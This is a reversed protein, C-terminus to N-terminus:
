RSEDRNRVLRILNEKGKRIKLIKGEEKMVALVMSIKSKSLGIEKVIDSQYAQGGSRLLFREIMQEVGLDEEPLPTLVAESVAPMIDAIDKEKYAEDKTKAQRRRWFIVVASSILVILAGLMWNFGARAVVLAPEGKSFSYYMAGGWILRNGDRGDFDPSSSKVDYGDPIEVVFVSDPSLVMGESFADGVLIKGSEITSFNKWWFSYRVIGFGGSLTEATGYSINPVEIEMSRNSFNKASRTFQQIMSNFEAIERYRSMNQGTKIFLEWENIEPATLPVRKEMTWFADGSENVEVTIISEGSAANAWFIIFIFFLAAKRM